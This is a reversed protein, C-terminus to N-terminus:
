RDTQLTESLTLRLKQMALRIRTKVTGLPIGLHEAIESHSYGQFYALALAERENPPLNKLAKRVFKIQLSKEAEEEAGSSYLEDEPALDTWSLSNKDPRRRGRRFEDIVRHRTISTLWTSVKAISADYTSAKEWVRMFVDQVIEEAVVTDEVSNMALSYVMRSYRDYLEGIADVQHRTLLRMLTVDDAMALRRGDMLRDLQNSGFPEALPAVLNRLSDSTFTNM